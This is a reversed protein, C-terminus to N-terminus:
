DDSDLGQQRRYERVKAINAAARAKDESTTRPDDVEVRGWWKTFREFAFQGEKVELEESRVAAMFADIYSRAVDADVQKLMVERMYGLAMGYDSSRVTRLGMRQAVVMWRQNFHQILVKAPDGGVVSSRLPASTDEGLTVDPEDDFEGRRAVAAKQTQDALASGSGHVCVESPPTHSFEKKSSSPVVEPVSGHRSGNSSILRVCDAKLGTSLCTLHYELGDLWGENPRTTTVLLGFRRATSVRRHIATHSVGLKKALLRQSPWVEPLYGALTTLLDRVGPWVDSRMGAPRKMLRIETRANAVLSRHTLKKDM